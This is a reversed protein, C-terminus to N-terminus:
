PCYVLRQIRILTGIKLCISLHTYGQFGIFTGPCPQRAKANHGLSKPRWLAKLNGPVEPPFFFWHLGLPARVGITLDYAVAALGVALQARVFLSAVLHDKHDLKWDTWNSKTPGGPNPGDFPM